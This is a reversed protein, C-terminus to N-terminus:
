RVEYGKFTVKTPKEVPHLEFPTIGKLIDAIQDNSVTNKFHIAGSYPRISAFIPSGNVNGVLGINTIPNSATVVTDAKTLDSKIVEKVEYGGELTALFADLDASDMNVNFSTSVPKGGLNLKQTVVYKPM